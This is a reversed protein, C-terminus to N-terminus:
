KHTISLAIGLVALAIIVLRKRPLKIIERIKSAPNKNTKDADMSELAHNFNGMSQYRDKPDKALAKFLVNEVSQPLDAVFQKPRPLPDRSHMILAALPTDAMYPKRGTVMEYFVVGLAYIDARHDVTKSSGQEPAMYEPTGLGM